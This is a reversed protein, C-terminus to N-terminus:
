EMELEDLADSICQGLLYCRISVDWYEWDFLHDAIASSDLGYESILDRIYDEANNDGTVCEMAKYSNCFYSGSANGTVSDETFLIDNLEDALDDRSWDKLDEATYHDSIYSLVDNKIEETYDYM